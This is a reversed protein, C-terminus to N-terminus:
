LLNGKLDVAGDQSTKCEEIANVWDPLPKGCNYWDYAIFRGFTIVVIWCALSVFASVQIKTPPKPLADWQAMNRQLRYHMVIINIFAAALFILKLRFWINHYYLLPKAFVLATGTAVMIVMGFITLPLIRDSIVSVPTKKFIVGLLRLDVVFITGAFLMLSLVHTGELLGWFNLSSALLDSWSPDYEGPGKGLRSMWVFLDRIM